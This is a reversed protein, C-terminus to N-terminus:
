PTNTITRKASSYLLQDPQDPQKSIWILHLLGSEDFCIAPNSQDGDGSAPAPSFDDSWKDPERWSLWVDPSDYRNDDWAIIILGTADMAIAPHWQPLNEMGSDEVLENKGFSKGGDHSVSAYIDYGGLFARKDMWTAAVINEHAALSVRTVGTGRGYKPNQPPLFENLLKYPSFHIGDKAFAYFLRTHAFRRDEWAVVVGEQSIALGPYLQDQTLPNSDPIVLPAAKLQNNQVTLRSTVIRSYKGQQQSWSAYIIKDGSAALTAQASTQSDLQLPIGLTSSNALRVWIHGAQEWAVIFNDDSLYALTPEYADKQTSIQQPKTFTSMTSNKFAIYIQATGSRNDEWVVAVTTASAAINKRGSSDIHYFVGPQRTISVPIAHTFQWNSSWASDTLGCLLFCLLVFKM